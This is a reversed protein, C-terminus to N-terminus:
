LPELRRFWHDVEFSIKPTLGFAPGLLGCHDAGVAGSKSIKKVECIVLAHCRPLVVAFYRRLPKSADWKHGMRQFLFFFPEMPFCWSPVATRFESSSIGSFYASFPQKQGSFRGYRPTLVQLIAKCHSMQMGNIDWEDHFFLLKTQFCWRPM